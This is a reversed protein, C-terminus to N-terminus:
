PNIKRLEVMLDSITAKPKQDPKLKVFEDYGLAFKVVNGVEQDFRKQATGLGSRLQHYNKTLPATAIDTNNIADITKPDLNVKM